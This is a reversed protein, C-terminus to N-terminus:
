EGKLLLALLLDRGLARWTLEPTFGGRNRSGSSPHGPAGARHKGVLHPRWEFQYRLKPARGEGGGAAERVRRGAAPLCHRSYRDWGLRPRSRKRLRRPLARHTLALAREREGHKPSCGPHSRSTLCVQLSPAPTTCSGCSQLVSGAM